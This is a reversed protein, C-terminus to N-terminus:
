CEEICVEIDQAGNEQQYYRNCLYLYERAAYDGRYLKLVEIFCLRAEYFSGALFKRVGEEFKERTLDKQEREEARDGDYVDYIEETRGSTKLRFLGILRSKYRSEFEPIEKAATGTVLIHSRYKWAVLKLHEAATIAESLMSASLRDRDGVIGLMVPGHSIGFGLRPELNEENQFGGRHFHQCIVIASDLVDQCSKQYFALLGGKYYEGVVGDKKQIFPVTEQYVRNIFAFLKKSELRETIKDFEDIGMSLMNLCTERYDGLRIQSIDTKQLIEFIEVPVFKHYGDNLDTVERMHISINFSMQNFIRSIESIETHGKVPAQVGLKGGAMEEVCAKLVRIPHIFENQVVLLLAMFCIAIMAIMVALLGRVAAEVTTEIDDVAVDVGVVGVAEGKSNLIPAYITANYGFRTIATVEFNENTKGTKLADAIGTYEPNYNERGGLQGISDTPTNENWTDFVYISESDSILKLAYLYEVKSNRRVHNLAEQIREYEEDKQLTRAYTEFKDGDIFSAALNAIQITDRRYQSEITDTYKKRTVYGAAVSIMITFILFIAVFRARLGFKLKM